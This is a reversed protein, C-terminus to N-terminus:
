PAFNDYWWHIESVKKNQYAICISGRALPRTDTYIVIELNEALIKSFCHQNTKRNNWLIESPESPVFKSNTLQTEVNDRKDNISIGFKSGEDIFGKSSIPACGIVLYSVCLIIVCPSIWLKKMNIGLANVAVKVLGPLKLTVSSAV